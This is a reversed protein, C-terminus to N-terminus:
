GAQVGRGRGPRWRVLLVLAILPPTYFLLQRALTQLLGDRITITATALFIAYAMVALPGQSSRAFARFAAGYIAAFLACWLIVGLYGANYWGQGPLSHTIAIPRTDKYLEFRKIPPGAPKDPWVARPIPGTVWELNNLCWDYGGTREPVAWVLYEFFEM